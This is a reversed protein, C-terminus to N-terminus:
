KNMHNLNAANGKFDKFRKQPRSTWKRDSLAKLFHYSTRAAGGAGAKQKWTNNTEQTPLASSRTLHTNTTAPMLSSELRNREPKSTQRSSLTKIIFCRVGPNLLIQPGIIWMDECYSRCKAGSDCLSGASDAAGRASFSKILHVNKENLKFHKMIQSFAPVTM